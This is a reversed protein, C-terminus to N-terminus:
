KLDKLSKWIQKMIDVGIKLYSRKKKIISLEGQTLKLSIIQAKLNSLLIEQDTPIVKQSLILDL